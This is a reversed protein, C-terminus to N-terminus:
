LVPLLYKLMCVHNLIFIRRGRSEGVTWRVKRPFLRLAKKPFPAKVMLCDKKKFLALYGIIDCLLVIFLNIFLCFFFM